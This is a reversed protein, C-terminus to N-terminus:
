LRDVRRQVPRPDAPALEFAAGGGVEFPGASHGRGRAFRSLSLTPLPRRQGKLEQQTVALLRKAAQPCAHFGRRFMARRAARERGRGRRKAPLSSINDAATTM